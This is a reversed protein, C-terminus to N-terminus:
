DESEYNRKIIRRTIVLLISELIYLEDDSMVPAINNLSKQIFRIRGLDAM